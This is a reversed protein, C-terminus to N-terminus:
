AQQGAPMPDDGRRWRRRRGRVAAGGETGGRLGRAPARSQAPAGSAAPLGTSATAAPASGTGVGLRDNMQEVYYDKWGDDRALSQRILSQLADAPKVAGSSGMVEERALGSITLGIELQARTQPSFHERGERTRVARVLDTGTLLIVCYDKEGRVARGMGQEITRTVRMAIVDSDPRCSEIYRDLLSEGFPKGDLILIRCSNDPLDIGDYRNAVVLTKKYSGERLRQVEADIGEADTVTAGESKWDKSAEFSPVLVVVGFTRRDNEKAFRHAMETATLSDDIDSPIVVMKEGSWASGAHTLPNEVVKPDLGLGRVLFSDDSITASMFVRHRADAYSGFQELPARHPAIILERGSVVCQCDRLM